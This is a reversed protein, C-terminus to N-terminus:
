KKVELRRMIEDVIKDSDDDYKELYIKESNLKEYDPLYKLADNYFKGSRKDNTFHQRLIKENPILSFHYLKENKTIKELVSEVIENKNMVWAFVINEISSNALFSNLMFQINELAMKKNEDNVVFPHIKWCWDGDLLVSNSLRKFVKSAVTTKGSGMTGSILILRKM